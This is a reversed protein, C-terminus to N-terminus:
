YRKACIPGIGADVSEPDDLRRGCALCHDFTKGLSGVEELSLREPTAEPTLVKRASGLYEYSVTKEDGDQEFHIRKVLMQGSQQGLYVRVLHDGHIWYVGPQAPLEGEERNAEGKRPLTLLYDIVQSATRSTARSWDPTWDAYKTGSLDKERLLKEVFTRQKDTAPRFDREIRAQSPAYIRNM